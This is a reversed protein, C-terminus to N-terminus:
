RLWVCGGPYPCITVTLYLAFAACAIFLGVLKWKIKM